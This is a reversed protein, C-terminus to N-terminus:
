SGGVPVRLVEGSIGVVLAPLEVEPRVESVELDWLWRGKRQQLAGGRSIHSGTERASKEGSWLSQLSQRSPGPGARTIPAQCM